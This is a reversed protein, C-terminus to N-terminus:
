ARPDDPLDLSSREPFQIPQGGSSLPEDRGIPQQVAPASPTTPTVTPAPSEPISSVAPPAAPAAPTAPAAPPRNGFDVQVPERQGDAIEFYEAQKIGFRTALLSTPVSEVKTNLERVNANYYRRASAIRDETSTLEAQLQQFNANAKLDPYAESVAILRGLAASLAGEAAAAQAPSQAGSMAAGRARIVADLTDREHTAYGKVTEVLNPILDHRRKLEVDIQRWSEQVLNRQRILGNYMAVGWAGIVVVLGVIILTPIM